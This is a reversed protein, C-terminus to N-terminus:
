WPLRLLGVAPRGVCLCQDGQRERRSIWRPDGPTRTPLKTMGSTARLSSRMSRARSPDPSAARIITTTTGSSRPAIPGVSRFPEAPLRPGGPARAGGDVVRGECGARAVGAEELGVAVACARARIASAMSTDDHGPLRGFMPLGDKSRDIPGAWTGAVPLDALKPQFQGLVGRLEALPRRPGKRAADIRDGYPLRGGMKLRRDPWGGDDLLKRHLVRSDVM